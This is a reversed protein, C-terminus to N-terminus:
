SGKDTSFEVRNEGEVVYFGSYEQVFPTGCDPITNFLENTNLIVSLKGSEDSRYDPTFKVKVKDVNKAESCDTTFVSVAKRGSTETVDAIVKINELLYENIRWFADGPGSVLFATRSNALIAFTFFISLNLALNQTTSPLSNTKM